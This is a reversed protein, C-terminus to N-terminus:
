PDNDGFVDRLKRDLAEATFPKLIYIDALEREAEVVARAIGHHNASTLIIPIPPIDRDAWILKIFDTGSIPNMHLDTMLLGHRRSKLRALADIAETTSDCDTFGAQRLIRCMVQCMTRSDDVVLAPLTRDLAKM